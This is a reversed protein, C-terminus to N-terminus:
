FRLSSVKTAVQSGPRNQNPGIKITTHPVRPAHVKCCIAPMSVALYIYIMSATYYVSSYIMSVALYIYIMSATYCVSSYIVSVALYIGRGAHAAAHWIPTMSEHNNCSRSSVSSSIVAKFSARLRCLLTSYTLTSLELLSYSFPSSIPRRNSWYLGGPLLLSSRRALKIRLNRSPKTPIAGSITWSSAM